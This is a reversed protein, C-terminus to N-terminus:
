SLCSKQEPNLLFPFDKIHKEARQLVERSPHALHHHLTEYDLSYLNAIMHASFEITPAKMTYITDGVAQPHFSLFKKNGNDYLSISHSSGRLYLGNQLFTGLSLLRNSLGELYYVPYIRVFEGKETGLIITGKGKVSVSNIATKINIPPIPQYEVFNNMNNTFHMSAGSDLMWKNVKADNESPCILKNFGLVLLELSCELLTDDRIPTSCQSLNRNINKNLALAVDTNNRPICNAM